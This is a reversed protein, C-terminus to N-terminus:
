IATKFKRVPSSLKPKCATTKDVQWKAQRRGPNCYGYEPKSPFMDEWILLADTGLGNPPLARGCCAGDRGSITLGTGGLGRGRPRPQPNASSAIRPPAPRYQFRLRTGASFPPPPGVVAANRVATTETPSSFRVTRKAPLMWASRNAASRAGCNCPFRPLMVPFRPDERFELEFAEFTDDPEVDILAEVVAIVDDFVDVLAEEEESVEPEAAVLEGADLRPAARPEEFRKESRMVVPEDEPELLELEDVDPLAAMPEPNPEVAPLM